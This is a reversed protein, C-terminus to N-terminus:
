VCVCVCQIVTVYDTAKHECSQIEKSWDMGPTWDVM